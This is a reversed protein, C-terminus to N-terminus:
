TGPQIKCRPIPVAFRTIAGILILVTVAPAEGPEM